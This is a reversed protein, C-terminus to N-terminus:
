FNSLQLADQLGLNFANNLPKPREYSVNPDKFYLRTLFVPEFCFAITKPQDKINTNLVM